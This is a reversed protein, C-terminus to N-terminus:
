EWIHKWRKRNVILSVTVQHVNYIEALEQQSFEGTRYLYVITRVENEKLKVPGNEEGKLSGHCATDLGNEKHTGWRLNSLNNDKSDGNLHRCEMGEPCPGVFTELVLRHIYHKFVRGEHCMNVCFHGYSIGPKLYKGKPNARKPASWVRGRKNIYYRPFGTIQKYRM